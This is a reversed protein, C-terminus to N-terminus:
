RGFPCAESLHWSAGGAEALRATLDPELARVGGIVRVSTHRFPEGDHQWGAVAVLQGEGVHVVDALQCSGSFAEDGEPSTPSFYHGRAGLKISEDM